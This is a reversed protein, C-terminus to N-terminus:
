WGGVEELICEGAGAAAAALLRAAEKGTAVGGGGGAENESSGAGQGKRAKKKRVEIVRAGSGGGPKEGSKRAAAEAEPTAPPPPPPPPPPRPPPLPLDVSKRPGEPLPPPRPLSLGTEGALKGVAVAVAVAGAGASPRQRRREKGVGVDRGGGGGGEEEQETVAAPTKDDRSAVRKDDLVRLSPAAAAVAAEYGEELAAATGRLTVSRLWSGSGGGAGASVRSLEAVVSRLPGLGANGGADLLRLRPSLGRPLAALANRGLRLESLTGRLASLDLREGGELRNGAASLKSLSAAGRLALSLSEDTLECGKVVLTALEACSALGSITIGPNGTLILAALKPAATADFTALGCSTLDIVRLRPLSLGRPLLLASSSPSSLGTCRAAVVHKLSGSTSRLVPELSRLRPNDSLDLRILSTLSSLDDVQKRKTKSLSLAAPHATPQAATPGTRTLSGSSTVSDDADAALEVVFRHLECAMERERASESEIRSTRVEEVDLKFADVRKIQQASHAASLECCASESLRM